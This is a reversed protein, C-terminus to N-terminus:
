PDEPPVVIEIWTSEDGQREHRYIREVGCACWLRVVPGAKAATVNDVAIRQPPAWRCSCRGPKSALARKATEFDIIEGM